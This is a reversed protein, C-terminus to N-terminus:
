NETSIEVSGQLQAEREAWGAQNITGYSSELM